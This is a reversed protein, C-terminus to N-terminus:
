QEMKMILDEIDQMLVYYLFLVSVVINKILINKRKDFVDCREIFIKNCKDCKVEMIPSALKCSGNTKGLRTYRINNHPGKIIM